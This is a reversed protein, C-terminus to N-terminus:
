LSITTGMPHTLIHPDRGDLIMVSQVNKQLAHIANEIKPIMGGQITKNQIMERAQDASLKPILRDNKDLVGAVDTMMYLRDAKMASAIAAASTDANINLSEGDSSLGIPAIIPIFNTEQFQNLISPDIITPEGVLGLDMHKKQAQILSGDIGSLGIAKGGSHEIARVIAKNVSGALTMEVVEMMEPDTIRLGKSFKSQINLKELHHQIQPGGGHVLIPYINKQRLSILSEAFHCLDGFNGMAHGGYKIVYCQM